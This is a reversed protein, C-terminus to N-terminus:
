FDEIAEENYYDEIEEETPTKLPRVLRIGVVPSTLWWKSKPMQPDIEKWSPDSHGRRSSTLDEAPDRYSGGRASRPYLEIPKAVPNDAIEDKFKKYFDDIYQDYTWEAANGLIDYLGFPNPKKEGVPLLEDNSNDIFWAYEGLEDASDGFFYKTSTGGRSAYEWEAETPLRYFVGTHEYLWKAFQIANYQTMGVAPFGEEGMGYNMGLYPKTPRTVAEVNDPVDGDSHEKESDKFAFLKYLEWPVEYTSMYFSDIKVKHEPKEDEHDSKNNGMIFEGGPIAEMTFSIDLGKIKQTYREFSQGQCFSSFIFALFLTMAIKWTNNKIKDMIQM